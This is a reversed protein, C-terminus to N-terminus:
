EVIVEVRQAMNNGMGQIKWPRRVVLRVRPCRDTRDGM